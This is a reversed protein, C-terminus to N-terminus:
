KIRNVINAFSSNLQNDMNGTTCSLLKSRDRKRERQSKGPTGPICYRERYRRAHRTPRTFINAPTILAGLESQGSTNNLRLEERESEVRQPM